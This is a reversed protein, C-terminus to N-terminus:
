RMWLDTWRRHLRALGCVRPFLRSLLGLTHLLLYLYAVV